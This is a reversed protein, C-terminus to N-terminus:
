KQPRDFNKGKAVLIDAYPKDQHLEVYSKSKLVLLEFFTAAVVKRAKNNAMTSFSLESVGPQADFNRALFTHM